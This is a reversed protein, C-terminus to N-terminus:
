YGRARIIDYQEVPEITGEFANIEAATDLAAAMADATLKSYSAKATFRYSLGNALRAIIYNAFLPDWSGPDQRNMVIAAKVAGSYNTQVLNNAVAFPYPQGDTRGDVTLPLVRIWNPPLDYAYSWRFLPDDTRNLEWLEIAFNWPQERLSAEVTQTYNRDLWRSYANSAGLTIPLEGIGDLAMNYLTHRTLSTPM